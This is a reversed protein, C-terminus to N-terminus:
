AAGARKIKRPKKMAAARQAKAATERTKVRKKVKTEQPDEARKRREPLKRMGARKKEKTKNLDEPREPAGTKEEVVAFLGMAEFASRPRQLAIMYDLGALADSEDYCTPDWGLAHCRNYVARKVDESRRPYGRGLFHLRIESLGAEYCEIKCRWAVSEVSNALGYLKRLKGVGDKGARLLPCEFAVIVPEYRNILAMIHREAAALYPAVDEWTQPMEFNGHEPKAIGDGFAWGTRKALDFFIIGAATKRTKIREETKTKKLAM